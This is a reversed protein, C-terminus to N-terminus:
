NSFIFGFGFNIRSQPRQASIETRPWLHLTDADVVPYDYTAEGIRGSEVGDIRGRVTISRGPEYEASELYGDRYVRFRKGPAAEIRPRLDRSTLPFAIVELRTREALNDIRVIQGGWIVARDVYAAPEAQVDAPEIARDYGETAFPPSACGALAAALLATAVLRGASCPWQGMRAPHARPSGTM